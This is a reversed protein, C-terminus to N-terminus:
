DQAACHRRFARKLMDLEDRLLEVEAQLSGSLADGTLVSFHALTEADAKDTILIVHIGDGIAEVPVPITLAFSGPEGTPVVTVGDIHQDRLTVDLDPTGHVPGTVAGEWRGGFVRTKTVTWDSM